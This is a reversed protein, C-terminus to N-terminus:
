SGVGYAAMSINTTGAGSNQIRGYVRNGPATDHCCNLAPMMSMTETDATLVAQDLIAVHKNTADGIGLDAFRVNTGINNSNFGVGQQWWFYQKTLDAGSLDTWAGEAATGPTVATGSSSAEVAGFTDVYTGARVLEPYKPLGYLKLWVAPTRATAANVSARCGIQTGARIFVPFYYNFGIRPSAMSGILNAIFVTFTSTDSADLGIDFLTDRAEASQANNNINIEIGYADFTLAAADFVEVWSGKVNSTGPTVTTGHSGSDVPRSNFNSVIAQFEAHPTWLM